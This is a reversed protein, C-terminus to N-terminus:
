VRHPFFKQKLKTALEERAKIEALADQMPLGCDVCDQALQRANAAITLAKDLAECHKDGLPCEYQPKM